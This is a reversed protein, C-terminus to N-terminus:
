SKEWVRRPRRSSDMGILHGFWKLERKDVMKTFLDQILIKIIRSNRIRDRRTKGKFKRLYRMEAGTIKIEHKNVNEM